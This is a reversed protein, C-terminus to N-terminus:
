YTLTVTVTDTYSGPAVYQSAPIEGYATFVQPLGTGAGTATNTGITNGWVTTDAAQEYISYTLTNGGNTMLRAAVTAGAGTGQNLGINYTTGMTCTATITATTTLIATSAYSGFSMPTATVMCFPLVTATVAMTAVSTAAAARERSGPAILLAAGVGVTVM